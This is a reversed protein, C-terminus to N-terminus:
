VQFLFQFLQGLLRDAVVGGSRHLLTGGSFVLRSVRRILRGFSPEGNESDAPLPHYQLVRAEFSLYSFMVQKFPGGCIVVGSVCIMDAVEIFNEILKASPFINAGDLANL